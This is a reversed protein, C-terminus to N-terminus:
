GWGGDRTRFFIHKGIRTMRKMKRAWRPRVYTAHYHSSSGIEPLWERGEIIDNAISKAVRWSKRSRIRDRIGDCAFSFQCANRRHKNHYVVGCITNPFVPNKVRNVIVQAVAAQGKKSEGRAEFYIGEALCKRARASFQSKPLPKAAWAHDGKGLRIRSTLSKKSAKAAEVKPDYDPRMSPVTLAEPLAIASAESDPALVADFPDDPTTTPAYATLTGRVTPLDGKAATEVPEARVPTLVPQPLKSALSDLAAVLVAQDQAPRAAAITRDVMRRRAEAPDATELDHWVMQASPRVTGETLVLRAARKAAAVREREARVAAPRAGRAAAVTPMARVNPESGLIELDSASRLAVEYELSAVSIGSVRKTEVKEYTSGVAVNVLHARWREGDAVYIGTYDSFDQYATVATSACMSAATLAVVRVLRSRLIM